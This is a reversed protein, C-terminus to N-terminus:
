LFEVHNIMEDADLVEAVLLAGTIVTGISMDATGFVIGAHQMGDKHLRLYDADYTIVVWGKERAHALVRPDPTQLTGAQAATTVDVGRARLGKAVADPVHEDTLYRIRAV